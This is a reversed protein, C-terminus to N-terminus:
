LRRRKNRATEAGCRKCTKIITSVKEYEGVSRPKEIVPCYCSHAHDCYTFKDIEIHSGVLQTEEAINEELDHGKTACIRELQKRLSALRNKLYKESSKRRNERM